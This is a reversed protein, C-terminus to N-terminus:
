LKMRLAGMRGYMAQRRMDKFDRLLIGHGEQGIGQM